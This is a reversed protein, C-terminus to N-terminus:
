GSLPEIRVRCHAISGHAEGNIPTLFLGTTNWYQITGIERPKYGVVSVLRQLRWAGGGNQAPHLHHPYHPTRLGVESGRDRESM